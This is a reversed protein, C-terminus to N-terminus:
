RGTGHVVRRVIGGCAQRSVDAAGMEQKVLDKHPEERVELVHMPGRMADGERAGRFRLLPQTQPCKRPKLKTPRPKLGLQMKDVPLISRDARIRNAYDRIIDEAEGRLRNKEMLVVDTCLSKDRVTALARHFDDVARSLRAAEEGSLKFLGPDNAIKGAFKEAMAEFKPDADPIYNYAM